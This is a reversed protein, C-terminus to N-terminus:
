KEIKLNDGKHKISSFALAHSIEGYSENEFLLCLALIVQLWM